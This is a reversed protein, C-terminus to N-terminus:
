KAKRGCHLTIIREVMSSLSRGEEEAMQELRAAVTPTVMTQIKVDRLEKRAANKAAM